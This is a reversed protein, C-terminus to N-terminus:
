RELWNRSFSTWDCIKHDSSTKSSMSNFQSQSQSQSKHDDVASIISLSVFMLPYTWMVPASIPDMGCVVENELRSSSSFYVKLRSVVGLTWNVVAFHKDGASTIM